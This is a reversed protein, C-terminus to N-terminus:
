PLSPLASLGSGMHIPGGGDAGYGGFAGQGGLGGAGSITTSAAGAVPPVGMPIPFPGPLLSSVVPDSPTSTG